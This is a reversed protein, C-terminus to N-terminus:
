LYHQQWKLHVNFSITYRKTSSLNPHVFHNVSSPWIMLAGPVPQITQIRSAPSGPPLTPIEVATARPDYFSIRASNRNFESDDASDPEPVQVYYTGSLYSWPHNHPSHYDGYRNVNPWIVIDWAIPYNMGMQKFYETLSQDINAMLWERAPSQQAQFQNSNFDTTLSPNAREMSDVVDILEPNATEYGPM